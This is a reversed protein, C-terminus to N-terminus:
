SGEYLSRTSPKIDADKTVGAACEGLRIKALSTKRSPLIEKEISM